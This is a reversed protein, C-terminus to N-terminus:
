CYYYIISKNNNLYRYLNNTNLRKDHFVSAYRLLLYKCVFHQYFVSQCLLLNEIELTKRLKGTNFSKIIYYYFITYLLGLLQLWGTWMSIHHVNIACSDKTDSITWPWVLSNLPPYRNRLIGDETIRQYRILLNFDEFANIQTLITSQWVMNKNFNTISCSM